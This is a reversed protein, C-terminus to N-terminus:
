HDHANRTWTGPFERANMDMGRDSRCAGGKGGFYNRWGPDQRQQKKKKGLEGRRLGRSRKPFTLSDPKGMSFLRHLLM